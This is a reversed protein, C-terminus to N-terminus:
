KEGREELEDIWQKFCEIMETQTMDYGELVFTHSDDYDTLGDLSLADICFVPRNCFINVVYVDLEDLKGCRKKGIARIVKDLTM